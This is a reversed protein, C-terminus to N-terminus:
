RGVAHHLVGGQSRSGHDAVRSRTTSRRIRTPMDWYLV